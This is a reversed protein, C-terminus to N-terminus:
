KDNLGKGQFTHILVRFSYSNLPYFISTKFFVQSVNMDPVYYLLLVTVFHFHNLFLDYLCHYM